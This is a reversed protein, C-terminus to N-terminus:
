RYLRKLAPLKVGALFELMAGGGTSVFNFKDLLKEKQLFVLTDGGGVITHASSQALAHAIKRTGQETESGKGTLGVPGNWVVTQAHNLVQIFNETSKETIDFGSDILDAVLLISRKPSKKEHQVKLLVKIQDAIEGGVLVFDALHHMTEVMPLKTEIKAGGILVVLPRAPNQMVSSLEHVEHALHLGAFSPIFHTVAETSAHARHSVAFAENVYYDGCTALQRGLYSDNEEENIFYRINEILSINETINWGKFTHIETEQITGDFKKAYWKAVPELSLEKKAVGDPRGLHGILIVKGGKDLIHQVTDLSSLLRTDDQIVGDVIDVDSDIRVLIKKGAIHPIHTVTQLTSAM